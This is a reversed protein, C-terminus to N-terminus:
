VVKKEEATEKTKAAEIEAKFIAIAEKMISPILKADNGRYLHKMTGLHKKFATTASISEMETMDKTFDKPLSVNIELTVGRKTKLLKCLRKKGSFFSIGTKSDSAVIKLTPNKAILSNIIAASKDSESIDKKTLDVKKTEEKKEEQVEKNEETQTPAQEETKEPAQEETKVEEEVKTEPATENKIETENGSVTTDVLSTEVKTEPTVAAKTEVKKTGNTKKM